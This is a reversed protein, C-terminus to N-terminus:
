CQGAAILIFGEPMTEHLTVTIDVPKAHLIVDYQVECLFCESLQLKVMLDWELTQGQM